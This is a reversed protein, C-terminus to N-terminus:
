STSDNLVVFARNKQRAKTYKLKHNQVWDILAKNWGIDYGAKESEIWKHKNIEEVEALYTKYLSSNQFDTM